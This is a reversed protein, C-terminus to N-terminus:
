RKVDRRGERRSASEATFQGERLRSSLCKASQEANPVFQRTCLGTEAWAAEAEEVDAEEEVETMEM